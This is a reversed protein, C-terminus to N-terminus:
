TRSNIKTRLKNKIVWITPKTLNKKMAPGATGIMWCNNRCHEVLKRVKAAQPSSWIHEFSHQHLNGMSEMWKGEQMGNCPRVEGWPDLFFLDTGARCPLPRPKGHVYDILGRNFYARYWNKIKKSRLQTRILSKLSQSVLTPNQIRNDEKHFYYSNHVAATAFELDLKAAIHYLKMLDVANEDSLTIAIGIDQCGAKRLERLTRMGQQYSGKLGRMEDNKGGVAELSIRIGIDRHSSVASLIKETFYGNTSIVIRKAKQQLISIIEDIDERLFPEGGTINCFALAPLKHLLSPKFEEKRRTPYKWIHCMRCKNICRYTTIISAELKKM